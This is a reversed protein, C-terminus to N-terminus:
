RRYCSPKLMGDQVKRRLEGPPKHALAEIGRLPELGGCLVRNLM